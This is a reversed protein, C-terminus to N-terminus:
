AVPGPSAAAPLPRVQVAAPVSFHVFRGAHMMSALLVHAHGHASLVNEVDARNDVQSVVGVAAVADLVTSTPANGAALFRQLAIALREELRQLLGSRIRRHARDYIDRWWESHSTYEFVAFFHAPMYGKTPTLTRPATPLPRQFINFRGYVTFQLDPVPASWDERLMVSLRADWQLEGAAADSAPIGRRGAADSLGCYRALLENIQNDVVTEYQAGTPSLVSYGESHDRLEAQLSALAQRQEDATRESAQRAQRQEDAAREM